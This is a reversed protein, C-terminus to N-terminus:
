ACTSKKKQIIEEFDHDRGDASVLVPSSRSLETVVSENAMCAIWTPICGLTSSVMRTRRECTKTRAGIGRDALLNWSVKASMPAAVIM